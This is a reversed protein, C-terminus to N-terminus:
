CWARGGQEVSERSFNQWSLERLGCAIVQRKGPWLCGFCHSKDGTVRGGARVMSVRSGCSTQAASHSLEM